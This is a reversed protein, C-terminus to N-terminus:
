NVLRSLLHPLLKTISKLLRQYAEPDGEKVDSGQIDCFCLMVLLLALTPGKMIEV